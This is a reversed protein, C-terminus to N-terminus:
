PDTWWRVRATWNIKAGPRERKTKQIKGEDDGSM